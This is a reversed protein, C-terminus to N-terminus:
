QTALMVIEADDLARNYLQLEDVKGHWFYAQSGSNEDAGIVVDHTDIMSVTAGVLEGVKVGDIFLAKAQGDWRAAVHFWRGAPMPPGCVDENTSAAGVSEVCTGSSSNWAVLGWADASGSSYPKAFAVQDVLTDIYLWAAFSWGTATYLWTDYTVRAYETGTFAFANGRHGPLSAPCSVGAICRAVRASGAADDIVGDSPDDDMAYWATLGPLRMDADIPVGDIGGDDSPGVNLRGCAVLVSITL